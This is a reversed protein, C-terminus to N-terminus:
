KRYSYTAITKRTVWSPKGNKILLRYGPLYPHKHGMGIVSWKEDGMVWVQARDLGYSHIFLDGSEVGECRSPYRLAATGASEYWGM